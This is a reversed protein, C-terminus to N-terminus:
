EEKGVEGFRFAFVDADELVFHLRIPKGALSGVDAGNKWVVPREIADGLASPCDALTFGPLPRGDADRIEVQVGGNVSTAYNLFLRNGQFVLPKTTFTGGCLPARASVFGDLRLTYRRIQNGKGYWNGVDQIYFSIENPAGPIDSKTEVMGWAAYGFGYVWRDTVPGPRVFAEQWVHFLTGDRSTMFGTDTYDTGCRMDAQSIRENLGSYWGRGAVYRAPFGLYLHPARYYLTVQNTYLQTTRRPVYGLWQPKTWSRFDDSTGTMIDRGSVAGEKKFDRHYEVYRERNVDWFALNQSDFYGETVVPTDRLYSWHIGDPSKYAMLGKTEDGGLAKYREEPPCKPNADKFPAFNHSGYGKWIINNEKSGDFEVLGLVPKTWHIGDKSEAYCVVQEHTHQIKEDFNSGRYYMRYLEGEQIVTHYSCNNGEWPADFVIAVEQPVPHHLRLEVSADRHDILFDDVLLERRSGIDVPEAFLPACLVVLALFPPPFVTKM